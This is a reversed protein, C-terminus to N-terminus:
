SKTGDVAKSNYPQIGNASSKVSAPSLRRQRAQCTGSRGRNRRSRCKHHLSKISISQNAKIVTSSTLPISRLLTTTKGSKLRYHSASYTGLTVSIQRLAAMLDSPNNKSRVNTSRGLMKADQCRKSPVDQRIKLEDCRKSLEGTRRDGAVCSDQCITLAPVLQDQQNMRTIVKSPFSAMFGYTYLVRAACCHHQSVTPM